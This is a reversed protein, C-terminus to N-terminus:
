RALAIRRRRVMSLTHTARQALQIRKPGALKRLSVIRDGATTVASGEDIPEDTAIRAAYQGPSHARLPGM